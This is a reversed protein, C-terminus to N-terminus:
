NVYSYGEKLNKLKYHINAATCGHAKAASNISVFIGLPTTVTRRGMNYDRTAKIKDITEQTHKKGM